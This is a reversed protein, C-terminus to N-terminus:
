KQFISFASAAVYPADPYTCSLHQQPIRRVRCTLTGLPYPHYLLDLQGRLGLLLKNAELRVPIGCHFMRHRQAKQMDNRWGAGGVGM